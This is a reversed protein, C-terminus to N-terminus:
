FAAWYYTTGNVNGATGVGGGVYFNINDISTATDIGSNPFIATSYSGFIDFRNTGGAAVIFVRSPVRGLAHAIPKNSTGDGM